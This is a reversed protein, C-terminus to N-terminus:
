AGGLRKVSYCPKYWFDYFLSSNIYWIKEQKHIL